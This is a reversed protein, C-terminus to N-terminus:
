PTTKWIQIIKCFFFSNVKELGTKGATKGLHLVGRSGSKSLYSFGQYPVKFNLELTTKGETEGYPMSRGLHAGFPPLGFLLFFFGLECVLIGLEDFNM